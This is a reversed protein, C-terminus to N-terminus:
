AACVATNRPYDLCFALADEMGTIQIVPIRPEQWFGHRALGDITLLKVFLNVWYGMFLLVQAFQFIDALNGITKIHHHEWNIPADAVAIGKSASLEYLAELNTEKHRHM